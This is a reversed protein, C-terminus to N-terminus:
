FFILLKDGKIEFRKIAVEILGGGSGNPHLATPPAPAPETFLGGNNFATSLKGQDRLKKLRSIAQSVNLPERKWKKALAEIAASRAGGRKIDILSLMEKNQEFTYHTYGSM